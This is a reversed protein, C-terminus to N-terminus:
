PGPAPAPQQQSREPTIDSAERAMQRAKELQEEGLEKARETVRDSAEGMWEDEQRTRPVAAAVAAGIALGIAGLAFPQERLMYDFGQRAREAQQRGSEATQRARERVNGAAQAWKDTVAQAGRTVSERTSAATESVRGLADAAKESLGPSESGADYEGYTGAGAQATGRGSLMLWALGIGVLTVPLPNHKVSAGLNAAFQRAGSNRLYDLGQDVLQGTTLRGEIERLTADMSRRVRTIEAEIEAPPRQRDYRM